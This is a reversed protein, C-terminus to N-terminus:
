VCDETVTVVKGCSGLEETGEHSLEQDYRGETQNSQREM